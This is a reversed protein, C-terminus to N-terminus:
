KLLIVEETSLLRPFKRQGGEERGIKELFARRNSIRKCLPERIRGDSRYDDYDQNLLHLQEDLQESIRVPLPSDTLLFWHHRKGAPDSGMSFDSVGNLVRNLATVIRRETQLIKEEIRSLLGTINKYRSLKLARVLWRIKSKGKLAKKVFQLETM